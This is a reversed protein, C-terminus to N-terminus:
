ITWTAWYPSDSEESESGYDSDIRGTVGGIDTVTIDADGDLEEDPLMSWRGATAQASFEVSGLNPGNASRM